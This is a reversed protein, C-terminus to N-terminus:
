KELESVQLFQWEMSWETMQHRINWIFRTGGLGTQMPFRPSSQRPSWKQTESPAEHSHKMESLQKATHCKFSSHNESTAKDRSDKPQKNFM